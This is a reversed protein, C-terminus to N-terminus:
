DVYTYVYTYMYIRVYMYVCVRVDYFLSIYIHASASVDIVIRKVGWIASAAPSLTHTPSGPNETTPPPTPPPTMATFKVPADLPTNTTCIFIKFARPYLSM